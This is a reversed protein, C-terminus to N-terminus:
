IRCMSSAPGKGKKGWEKIYKGDKDFKVIRNNTNGGHGDAVFIDGNPTVLIDSPANFTDQTTGAVGPKGLTMLLKGDQNFKMVTHGKGNNEAAGDSVWINNDRDVYLGHSFNIMGGGFSKVLNGKEDFKMIPDLKSNACSRADECRDFAWVSKGDRDIDLSVVAGWKRRDPLQAWGYTFKYPNPAENPGYALGGQSHGRDGAMALVGVFAVGFALSMSRWMFDEWRNITARIDPAPRM